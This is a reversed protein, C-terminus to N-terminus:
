GPHNVAFSLQCVVLGNQDVVTMRWPQDTWAGSHERIMEGATVVAHHRADEASTFDSGERDPMDQGDFIHFFFRYM